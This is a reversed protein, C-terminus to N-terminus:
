HERLLVNLEPCKVKCGTILKGEGLEPESIEQRFNTKRTIVSWLCLKAVKWSRCFHQFHM